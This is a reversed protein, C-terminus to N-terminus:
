AGSLGASTERIGTLDGFDTANGTTAITIYQIVNIPPWGGGSITGRTLNSCGAPADEVTTLLNGFDTANGITAITTYDIVDSASSGNGGATIGRTLSAFTASHRRAVTLDGFDVSNGPTAITVYEIVNILVSSASYGGSIVGRPGNSYGGPGYRGETLDGFDVANGITAITIYDIINSKTSPSAHFGGAFCGKTGDSFSAPHSGRGITLDGFDTANGPTAVTVYDINNKYGGSDQGGGAIGRAGNSCCAGSQMAFNLDGFDIANGTTAITIYEITNLNASSPTNTWGGVILGRSGTWAIPSVDGSGAGVNTWVNAGATADTCIYVEGSTTNKYKTGVGGSPNTSITPDSAGSLASNMGTLLSGDVAPIKGNSDLQILKNASTGVDEMMGVDVKTLTLITL